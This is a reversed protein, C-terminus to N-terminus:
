IEARGSTLVRSCVAQGRQSEAGKSLPCELVKHPRQSSWCSAAPDAAWYRARFGKFLMAVTVEPSEFLAVCGSPSVTEFATGPACFTM